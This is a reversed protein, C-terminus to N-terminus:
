RCECTRGCDGVQISATADQCTTNAGPACNGLHCRGQPAPGNGTDAITDSFDEDGAGLCTACWWYAATGDAVYWEDCGGLTCAGECWSPYPVVWGNVDKCIVSHCPDFTKRVALAAVFSTTFGLLVLWALHNLFRM